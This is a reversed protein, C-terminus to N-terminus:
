VLATDTSAVIIHDSVEFANGQTTHLTLLLLVPLKVGQATATDRLWVEPLNATGFSFCANHKLM